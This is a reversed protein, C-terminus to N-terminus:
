AIVMAIPAGRMRLTQGEPTLIPEESSYDPFGNVCPVDRATLIRRVGPMRGARRTDVRLLRAHDWTSRLVKVRLAGAAMDEVYRARGTVKALADERRLNGGLPGATSGDGSTAGQDTRISM